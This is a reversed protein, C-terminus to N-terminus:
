QKPNDGREGSIPHSSTEREAESLHAHTHHRREEAKDADTQQTPVPVSTEVESRSGYSVPPITRLAALVDDPANNDRARSLLEDKEAPYDVGNLWTRLEHPDNLAM